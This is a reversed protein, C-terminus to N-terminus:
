HSENQRMRLFSYMRTIGVKFLHPPTLLSAVIYGDQAFDYFYGPHIYVNKKNLLRYVFEEGALFLDSKLLATWGGEAQLYQISPDGNLTKKLWEENELIRKRVQKQFFHRLPLLSPLGHQVATGVSLYADSIWELRERAPRTLRLPGSMCIWGLKMQPLGCIKSLGSLVFTLVGGQGACSFSKFRPGHSYDLFVEDVILALNFDRCIQNLGVLEAPKLYHGMPNHPSVAVIARTQTTIRERLKVLDIRWGDSKQYRIPYPQAQVSELQSLSELLPYSPQPVLIEEGPNALLKFLYGYAESTSATLFIDSPLILRGRQRYYRAVAQRASLLGQPDPEYRLVQAKSHVKRIEKAPYNLRLQTPNSLTLDYVIEGALRKKALLRSIRNASFNKTVRSSFM